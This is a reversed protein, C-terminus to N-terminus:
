GIATLSDGQSTIERPFCAALRMSDGVLSVSSNVVSIRISGDLDKMGPHPSKLYREVSKTELVSLNSQSGFM